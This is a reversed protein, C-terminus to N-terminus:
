HESYMTYLLAFYSYSRTLIASYTVLSINTFKMATFAIPKQSRKILFLLARRCRPSTKYWASNYAAMSVGLNAHFIDDAYWCLMGIQILASGLFLKNSVAIFPELLVIVFVVCCINLSSMVINILNSLSFADELDNCYMILRQHLRINSVIEQYYEEDTQHTTALSELRRQLLRLLLGIHSAMASFLLDTGVMIWVSTQGAFVEFIYVAVHAIMEHKDFPYWSMWVYGVETNQGQLSQYFYIGIPTLNYFWVGAINTTFYWRHAMRLASLSNSKITQAAKDLPPMPWIGALEQLLEGFKEKKYWLVSMKAISLAGYGFTHFLPVVDEVRPSNSLTLGIYVIESFVHYFIVCVSLLFMLKQTLYGRRSKPEEFSLGIYRMCFKCLILSEDIERKALETPSESM